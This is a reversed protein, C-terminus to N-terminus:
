DAVVEVLGAGDILIDSAAIKVPSQTVIPWVLAVLIAAGPAGLVIWHPRSGIRLPADLREPNAMRDLAAQRFIPAAM